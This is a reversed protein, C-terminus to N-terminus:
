PGSSNRRRRGARHDPRSQRGAGGVSLGFARAGTRRVCGPQERLRALLATATTVRKRMPRGPRRARRRVPYARGRLHRGLPLPAPEARLLAPLGRRGAVPTAVEREILARIAAEDDTERRGEGDGLPEATSASGGRRRCCCNASSWRARPRRGPRSRRESPHNQIERAILDRAIAVGNVRSATAAEPLTAHPGLLEHGDSRRCPSSARPRRSRRRSGSTSGPPTCRAQESIRTTRVVQYGRRGLYWVPASWVHVLRTFPFVLFITM